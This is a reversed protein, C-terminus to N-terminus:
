VRKFALTKLNLIITVIVCPYVCVSCQNPWFLTCDFIIIVALYWYRQCITKLSLIFIASIVHWVSALILTDLRRKWENIIKLVSIIINRRRCSCLIRSDRLRYESFFLIFIFKTRERLFFSGATNNNNVICRINLFSKPTVHCM